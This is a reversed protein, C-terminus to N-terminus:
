GHIELLTTAADASVVDGPNTNDFGIWYAPRYLEPPSPELQESADLMGRLCWALPPDNANAAEVAELEILEAENMM